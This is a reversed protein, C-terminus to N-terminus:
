DRKPEWNDCVLGDFYDKCDQCVFRKICPTGYLPCTSCEIFHRCDACKKEGWDEPILEMFAKVDEEGFLKVKSKFQEVSTFIRDVICIDNCYVRTDGKDYFAFAPEGIIRTLDVFKIKSMDHNTM